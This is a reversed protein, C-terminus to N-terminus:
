VPNVPDDRKQSIIKLGATLVKLYGREVPIRSLEVININSFEEYTENKAYHNTFVFWDHKSRKVIELITREVGSKLYVWPYYLAVRM